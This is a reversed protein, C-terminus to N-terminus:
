SGALGTLAVAASWTSRWPPQRHRATPPRWRVSRRPRGRRRHLGRQGGPPAVGPRGAPRLPPRPRRGDTVTSRASRRVVAFAVEAAPLAVLALAATGSTVPVGPGWAAALLVALVTGLLYSGGDGLYIRAPPRNYGSSGSWPPRWPWPWSGDRGTSWWPSGSPPWPRRRWRGAPRARRHSQGRQDLPRHGVRAPDRRLRPPPTPLHARGRGRHGGRRPGPGPAAPRLPRRGRRPRPRGGPARAVTPRGSLVGVAVGAFVASAVSTPSRTRRPSSHEPDTWSARHPTAVVMALPTIVLAVGFALVAIVPLTM